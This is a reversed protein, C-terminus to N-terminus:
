AVQKSNNQELWAPTVTPAGFFYGQLCDFGLESLTLADEMNGIRTAVTFIDFQRAINAIAGAIIQNEPDTSINQTFYGDLKVYNFFFDKFYRFSTLGSAYDDLAFAIGHAQHEDMFDMVLEPVTMASPESIELILRQAIDPHRRLGSALLHNWKRYGISRASMNISLSLRSNQILSKMGMELAICDLKRGLDSDEVHAMFDRAPIVRGTEDLVRILAEYFAPTKHDRAMVVPQYALLVEQHHIADQVMQVVSQDRADVAWDLPNSLPQRKSRRARGRAPVPKYGAQPTGQGSRTATQHPSFQDM